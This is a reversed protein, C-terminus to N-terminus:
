RRRVDTEPLLHHCLLDLLARPLPRADVTFVPAACLRNLAAANAGPPISEEYPFRNLVVALVPAHRRQLSELATLIHSQAGLEDKAILLVPAHLANALDIGNITWTIPSLVGGAGEFLVADHSAALTSAAALLDDITLTHGLREFEDAPAVPRPLPWPCVAALSILLGSAALLAAADAPVGGNADTGSEVPKFPAVRGVPQLAQLIRSATHTKGIGTGTGLVALFAM